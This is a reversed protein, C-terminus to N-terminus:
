LTEAVSVYQFKFNRYLKLRWLGILHMNNVFPKRLEFKIKKQQKSLLETLNRICTHSSYNYIM